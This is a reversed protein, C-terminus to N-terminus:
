YNKYKKWMEDYEKKYKKQHEIENFNSDTKVNSRYIELVKDCMESCVSGVLCTSCLKEAKSISIPEPNNNKNNIKRNSFVKGIDEFAPKKITTKKNEFQDLELSKMISNVVKEIIDISM